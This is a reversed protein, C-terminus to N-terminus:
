RRSNNISTIATNAANTLFVNNEKVVKQLAPISGGNKTGIEALINCAEQRAFVENQTNELYKVVEKEAKPGIKKLAEAAPQKDFADSLRAALPGASSPSKIEGLAKIVEGRLGIDTSQLAKHLAPVSEETGWVALAKAAESAVGFENSTLLGELAKCMERRRGEVPKWGTIHQLTWQKNPGKLDVLAQTVEADGVVRTGAPAPISAEIAEKGKQALTRVGYYVGFILGGCLLMVLLLGGLVFFPWKPMGGSAKAERGRDGYDDDDDEFRRRAM